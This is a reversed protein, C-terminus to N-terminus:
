SCPERFKVQMALEFKGDDVEAMFVDISEVEKSKFFKITFKDIEGVEGYYARRYDLDVVEILNKSPIKKILENLKM